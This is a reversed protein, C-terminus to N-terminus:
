CLRLRSISGFRCHQATNGVRCYQREDHTHHIYSILRASRRDCVRRLKTLARALKNVSWLIGPGGIRALFLCTLVIQSCVNSLDGVTELEEKKFHHADLCPTSVKHLQETKKEALEFSREGCTQAHGENKNPKCGHQTCGLYAHDLFSTPEGLDVRKMCKKCMPAMNQKRGAM